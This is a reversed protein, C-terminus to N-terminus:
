ESVHSLARAVVDRVAEAEFPKTLVGSVGHARAEDVDIHDAWGTVLVVPIGGREVRALRAVEWGSLGAMGLDTVVLDFPEDRLRALGARGDPLASVTHGQAVLLDALVERVAPEDDILLIRAARPPSAPSVAPPAPSPARAVPLRITFTSGRGPEGRAEIGGGHRAIIGYAVSLGLGTGKEAKTTFFPDFVRRRVDGTMGVGTDTVDCQVREDDAGLRITVRGGTPMADLANFVLNVLVERLESPDGAVPPVPGGSVRMEYAIGRAMADDKWRSRTVELVEAILQGVNVPEFPRARRVRTFEQIRRVTRAGDQAATEIIRLQRQYRPEEVQTLLLQARGMIAALINNFDHAVGAAMEGLARLKESRILQDQAAALDDHARRREDYLRASRVALAALGAINVLLREDSETFPRAADRLALIGLAQDGAVLPVGLWHPFRLSAPVPQVGERRCAGAYDDTRLPQRRQFVATMLGHGLPYARIPNPDPAGDVMRLAVEFRQGPPDVLFVVMSDANLVRGTQQHVAQVLTGIDLQGTVARSLEYLVSLEDLKRRNDRFLEANVVAVGAHAGMAEVLALERDSFERTREWWVAIFGGLAREKAVIPAFLQARHPARAKLGAPVRPDDPVNTSVLARGTAMGAAYLPSEAPDIRYGRMAELAARPVRYGAFPELHGSVPDVLWVGVSDAEITRAVQRLFHRLLPQLDLTSSLARSVSLLTETERLKERTQRVLEANELALGVQAAIGEVLRAEAGTFSRGAAWWALFLGGVIEGRILTPAFLLAGPRLGSLIGQDVRPDAKYDSTWVPRRTQWAEGLLPFRALELGARALTELFERPVHYGAIPVLVERRPDLFYAGVMDARFARAVERAVQRLMEDVPLTQSLVRGVALLTETERLRQGTEEFLRANEVAVAAQDAFAQALAVAEEDFHRGLRDVVTLAGIVEDKVLLPVALVAHYPGRGVRARVAATLTVRPDTFVDSTTVPCRDRVALGSVGTGRPVTMRPQRAPRGADNIALSVLDGSSPELRYLTAAAAGLLARVSDAIRQAVEAPDLSQSVLRGLDALSEAARRRRDTEAFLRANRVGIAAYEGLRALVAEDRDTFSRRSRDDVFLLGEVQDGSKIPVAMSAVIGEAEITAVYDKTIRPDEAYDDTRFPCGTLLVQGGVGRGPELAYPQRGHLRSGAWCRFVMAGSIPDRLAIHAMDSRCLNMAGEAVRQLVADLDLSVNIAQLVGALVEAERRRNDAEEYLRANDIALGAQRGIGEVLRRKAPTLTYERDWWFLTLGGIPRAKALLPVFLAARPTKGGLTEVLLPSDTALDRSFVARGATWASEVFRHGALPLRAGRLRGLLAAPVHYGAVVSLYR